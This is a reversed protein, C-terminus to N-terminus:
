KNIIGRRATSRTHYGSEFELCESKDCDREQSAFADSAHDRREEKEMKSRFTWWRRQLM